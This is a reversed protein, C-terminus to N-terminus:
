MYNSHAEVGSCRTFAFFMDGRFIIRLFHKCPPFRYWRSFEALTDTHLSNKRMLVGRTFSPWHSTM